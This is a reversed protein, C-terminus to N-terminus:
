VDPGKSCAALFNGRVRGQGLRGKRRWWEFSIFIHSAFDGTFILYIHLKKKYENKGRGFQKKKKKSYKSDMTQFM